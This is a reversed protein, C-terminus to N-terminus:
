AAGAEAQASSGPERGSHQLDNDAAQLLVMVRLGSPSRNSASITGNCSAICTKAITLGLGVGGTERTRSTDVRFFPDFLQVLAEPPVGPGCDAVEIQIAEGTRTGTVTIPGAEGAYRIANRILNGIARQLLDSDARVALEPPCSIAVREEGGSERRAAKELCALLNVPVLQINQAGLAARSFSLLENVLGAMHDVEERLDLLRERDAPNAREELIGLALQLRSIPACLEHAVDSLFRRQGHVLGALRESMTNIATGLTGIEDRRKDEVRGDFKGEAIRITADRLRAISSTISRVLPLWFIISLLLAAIGGLILPSFDFFLGGASLTDSVLVLTVPSGPPQHRLPARVLLWYRQPQGAHFLGALEQSRAEPRPPPSQEPPPNRGDLPRDEFDREPPGGLPGPFPAGPPPPPRQGPRPRLPAGQQTPPGQPGQPLRAIVEKPLVIAKGAVETGDHTFLHFTVSYSSDFKALVGNWEEPRSDNMDRLVLDAVSRIRDGARGALLSDFGLRLQQQVIMWGVTVLLAVNLVLWCVIKALLPFRRPLM